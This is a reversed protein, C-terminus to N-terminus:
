TKGNLGWLNKVFPEAAMLGESEEVEYEKVQQEVLEGRFAKALIAQPLQEIKAKLSHYQFEMKNAIFFLAKKRNVIEVQEDKNTFPM